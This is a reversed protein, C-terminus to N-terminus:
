VVDMNEFKELLFYDAYEMPLYTSFNHIMRTTFDFEQLKKCLHIYKVFLKIRFKLNNTRYTSLYIFIELLISAEKETKIDESINILYEIVKNSINKNNINKLQKTMFLLDHLIMYVDQKNNKYWKTIYFKEINYNKFCIDKLDKFKVDKFKSTTPKYNKIYAILNNEEHSSLKETNYKISLLNLPANNHDLSTLIFDDM